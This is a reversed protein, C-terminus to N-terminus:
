YFNMAENLTSFLLPWDKTFPDLFEGGRGVLLRSAEEVGEASYDLIAVARVSM